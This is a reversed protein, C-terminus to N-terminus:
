FTGKWLWFLFKQSHFRSISNPGIWRTVRDKGRGVLQQRCDRSRGGCRERRAVFWIRCHCPRAWTLVVHNRRPLARGRSKNGWVVSASLIVGRLDCRNARNGVKGRCFIAVFLARSPIPWREGKVESLLFVSWPLAPWVGPRVIQRTEECRLFFCLGAGKPQSRRCLVRRERRARTGVVRERASSYHLSRRTPGGHRM